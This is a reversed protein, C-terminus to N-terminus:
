FSFVQGQLVGRNDPGLSAESFAAFIHDFSVGCFMRKHTTKGLFGGNSTMNQPKLGLDGEEQSQAVLGIVHLLFM